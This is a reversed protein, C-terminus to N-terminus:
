AEGHFIAMSKEGRRFVEETVSGNLLRDIGQRGHTKMALMDCQHREAIELIGEGINGEAIEFQCVTGSEIEIEEVLDDLYLSSSMAQAEQIRQYLGPDMTSLYDIANAQTLQLNQNVHTLTVKADFLNALEITPQIFSECYPTNDLAVLIHKPIRDDRLALVPCAANRIVKETISGLLIRDLGKYGHTVMIILDVNERQATEIIVKEPRGYEIIGRCTEVERSTRSILDGMYEDAHGQQITPKMSIVHGIEGHHGVPVPTVVTDIVELLIVEVHQKQSLYKVVELAQEARKSGDVPILIRKFM